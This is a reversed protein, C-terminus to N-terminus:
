WNRKRLHQLLWTCPMWPECPQREPRCGTGALHFHERHLELIMYCGRHIDEMFAAQIRAAEKDKLEEMRTLRGLVPAFETETLLSLYVPDDGSELLLNQVRDSLPEPRYYPILASTDFYRM